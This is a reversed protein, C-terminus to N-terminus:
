KEGEKRAPDVWPTARLNEACWGRGSPKGTTFHDDQDAPVRREASGAVRPGVYGRAEIEPVWLACRSGICERETPSEHVPGNPGATWAAPALTRHCIPPSM